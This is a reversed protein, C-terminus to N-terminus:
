GSPTRGRHPKRLGARPPPKSKRALPSKASSSELDPAGVLMGAAAAIALRRDLRRQIATQRRRTIPHTMVIMGGALLCIFPVLLGLAKLLHITALPQVALKPDFGLLGALVISAAASLNGLKVIVSVISVHIARSESRNKWSAYDACDAAVLYPAMILTQGPLGIILYAIILLAESDRPGLGLLLLAVCETFAAIAVCTGRELRKFLFSWAPTILISTGIQTLLLLLLIDARHFWFALLFAILGSRGLYGVMILAYGGCFRQFVPNLLAAMVSGNHHGAAASRDPVLLTYGVLAVVGVITTAVVTVMMTGGYSAAGTIPASELLRGILAGGPIHLDSVWAGFARRLPFTRKDVLLFPAVFGAFLAVLMVVSQSLNIKSRQHHDTSLETGQSLYPIFAMTWTLFFLFIGIGYRAMSMGHFPVFLLWVAPLFLAMGLVVWPKRRGFPTPFSDSVYAVAMDALGDFIRGLVMLSGLTALNLGIVQAYYPIVFNLPMQGFVLPAVALSYAGVQLRTLPRDANRHLPAAQTTPM